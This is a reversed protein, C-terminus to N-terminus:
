ADALTGRFVVRGEGALTPVPAGGGRRLRVGLELGSSAVLRVEKGAEGWEALLVACSVAGSGCALTEGEVGREFTRMRWRGDAARSLFNVNAGGPLSRDWRLATGRRALDVSAADDCLVVLHPVGAVAYGIRREGPEAVLRADPRVDRVPELEVEPRGRVRM